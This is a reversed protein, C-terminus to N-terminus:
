PKPISDLPVGWYSAAIFIAGMSMSFAMLFNVDNNDLLTGDVRWLAARSTM